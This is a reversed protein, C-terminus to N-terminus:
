ERGLLMDNLTEKALETQQFTEPDIAMANVDVSDDPEAAMAVVWDRPMWFSIDDTDEFYPEPRDDLEKPLEGAEVLIRTHEYAMLNWFAATGHPEDTRGALIKLIHRLASNLYAECLPQGKEWNRAEYKIGGAEGWVALQHLALPSLLDYRGKGVRTDRQSGTKWKMRGGNDQMPCM